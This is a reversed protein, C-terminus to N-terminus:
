QNPTLRSPLQAGQSRGPGAGSRPAGDGRRSGARETNKTRDEPRRHRVERHAGEEATLEAFAHGVRWRDVQQDDKDAQGHEGGNATPKERTPLWRRNRALGDLSVGTRRGRPPGAFPIARGAPPRFMASLPPASSGENSHGVGRIPAFARTRNTARRRYALF